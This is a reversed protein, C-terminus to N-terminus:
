FQRVCTNEKKGKNLIKKLGKPQEYVFVAVSM